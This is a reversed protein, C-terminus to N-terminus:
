RARPTISEVFRRELRYLEAKRRRREEAPSYEEAGTGILRYHLHCVPCVATFTVRPKLNLSHRGCRCQWKLTRAPVGTMVAYSPVDSTVVAGAGVISYLHVTVGGLITANAGLIAHRRVTIPRVAPPSSIAEEDIM